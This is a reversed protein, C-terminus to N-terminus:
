NTAKKGPFFLIMRTVVPRLARVASNSSLTRSQGYIEDLAERQGSTPGSASGRWDLTLGLLFNGGDGLEGALKGGQWSTINGGVDSGWPEAVFPRGNLAELRAVTTGLSVGAGTHWKCPGFQSEYCVLVRDIVGDRWLLALATSSDKGFVVTAPEPGEGTDVPKDEVNSKGFFRELGTRSTGAAIPGIRKGPVITWDNQQAAALGLCVLALATIATM